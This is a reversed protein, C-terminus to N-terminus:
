HVNGPMRTLYREPHQVQEVIPATSNVLPTLQSVIAGVRAQQRLLDLLLQFSSKRQPLEVVQLARRSALGLRRATYDLATSLGGKEDVLGNNVASAGTWVRGGAIRRVKDSSMDRGEAVRQLFQTYVDDIMAEFRRAGREDFGRNFSWVGANDGFSVRDWNVNLKDWLGSLDFKGGVVGISGTVTGPSAFIRDAASAVWYGGSAAVPGLSAIVTKGEKQAYEIGRRITESATPSGGPSNIRVVISDISDNEAADHLANYIKEASAVDSRAGPGSVPAQQVITGTLSVLAIRKGNDSVGSPVVDLM